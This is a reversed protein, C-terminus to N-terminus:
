LDSGAPETTGFVSEFANGSSVICSMKSPMTIIATWTGTKESAYIELMGGGSTMGIATRVEGHKEALFKVVSDRPACQGAMAPAAFLAIMVSLALKKM